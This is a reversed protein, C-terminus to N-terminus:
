MFRHIRAAMPPAIKEPAALVPIFYKLVFMFFLSVARTPCYTLIMNKASITLAIMARCCPVCISGARDPCAKSISRAVHTIPNAAINDSKLAKLFIFPPTASITAFVATNKIYKALIEMKPPDSFNGSGCIINAMMYKMMMACNKRVHDASLFHCCVTLRCM